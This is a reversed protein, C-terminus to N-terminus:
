LIKDIFTDAVGVPQKPKNKSSLYQARLDQESISDTSAKEKKAYDPDNLRAHVRCLANFKRPTIRWFYAPTMKLVVM